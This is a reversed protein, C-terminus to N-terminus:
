RAPVTIMSFCRELRFPTKKNSATVRLNHRGRGHACINCCKRGILSFVERRHALHKRQSAAHLSSRLLRRRGRLPVAHRARYRDVAAYRVSAIRSFGADRRGGGLHRPLKSASYPILLIRAVAYYFAVGLSANSSIVFSPAFIRRRAMQCFLRARSIHLLIKSQERM